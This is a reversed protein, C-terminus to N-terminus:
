PARGAIAYFREARAAGLNREYERALQDFGAARICDAAARILQPNM